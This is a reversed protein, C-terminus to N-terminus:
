SLASSFERLQKKLQEVRAVGHNVRRVEGLSDVIFTTPLGLVGWSAAFEPQELANIAVIQVNDNGLDSTLQDLAPKQVAACPPCTESWFYIVAPIGTRIQALVPDDYDRRSIRNVQWRTGVVYAGMVLGILTLSIILRDVM